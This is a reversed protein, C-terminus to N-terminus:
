GNPQARMDFYHVLRWDAVVGDCALAYLRMNPGCEPPAVGGIEVHGKSNSDVPQLVAVGLILAMSYVICPAIAQGAWSEWSDGVTCRASIGGKTMQVTVEGDYSRFKDVLGFLHDADHLPNWIKVDSLPRGDFTGAPAGHFFLSRGASIGGWEYPLGRAPDDGIEIITWGLVREALGAFLKLQGPSATYLASPIM